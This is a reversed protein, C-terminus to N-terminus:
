RPDNGRGPQYPIWFSFCAGKGPESESCALEIWWELRAYEPQLPVKAPEDEFLNVIAIAPATAGGTM